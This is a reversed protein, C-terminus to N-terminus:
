IHILSMDKIMDQHKTPDTAMAKVKITPTLTTFGNAELLLNIPGQSLKGLNAFSGKIESQWGFGETDFTRLQQKM